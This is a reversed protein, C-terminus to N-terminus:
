RRTGVVIPDGDRVTTLIRYGAAILAESMGEASAYYNFAGLGNEVGGDRDFMAARNKNGCLVVRKVGYRAITSLVPVIDERLYYLMRVAVVTAVGTLLDFNQRIDGEVMRAREVDKGIVKWQAQLRVAEIHRDRRLELASVDFGRGALLLALVGEAAGMELVPGEDIFPLLRLYKEPVRGQAIADENKRYALSKRQLEDVPM